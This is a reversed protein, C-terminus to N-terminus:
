LFYEPYTKKLIDGTRLECDHHTNLLGILRDRNGEELCLLIDKHEDLSTSFVTHSNQFDLIHFRTTYMYQPHILDWAREHGCIAFLARHFLHDNRVYAKQDNEKIAIEQLAISHMLEKSAPTKKNALQLLVNCELIHRIFMIERVLDIDIPAVFTGSQPYINVLHEQKLLLLAERVPTRSVELKAAIENDSISIGPKLELFLIQDRLINLVEQKSLKNRSNM